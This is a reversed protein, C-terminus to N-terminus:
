APRIYALGVAGPGAHTGIVPSIDGTIERDVRFHKVAEALLENRAEPANASIAGLYELKGQPGVEEEVLEILRLHAKNSTRVREVAIITGDQVTLIPKLGLATGLFRAAGGIRGGKHLFELTELAFYVKSRSILDKAYNKCELLSAGSAAAMATKVAVMALPMSTTLSDVVEVRKSDVERQAQTASDNTGSLKSSLTITLIDRGEALLDDYVQRFAEISPQSTTPISKSGALRTYFEKITIDVNDLYTKGDWNVSLPVVSIQNDKLLDPTLCATSDTVITVPNM